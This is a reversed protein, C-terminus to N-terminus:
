GPSQCRFRPRGCNGAPVRGESCGYCRRKPAARPRSNATTRARASSTWHGLSRAARRTAPTHGSQSAATSVALGVAALVTAHWTRFDKVTFDAKSIEQLYANIDAATVDHAVGGSRYALLEPGGWRRRKLSRIVAVTQADAVAHERRQSGKGVYDFIIEDRRCIV